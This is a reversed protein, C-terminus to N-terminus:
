DLSVLDVRNKREGSCYAEINECVIDVLRERAEVSAYAIHPTIYIREKNKVFLLANDKEVPERSLVDLGAGYIVGEDLAKALAEEDVIGGRGLNLLIGTKKMLALQEAGILNKTKETLPAHISVIDSLGLLDSLAFTKKGDVNRGEGVPSSIVRCGFGEAYKAVIRGINGMGIIGWTKGELEFFDKGTHDAFAEEAYQGSKTYDDYYRSHSILYFLMAFTHQAVSRGAYAPVNTVAIGKERCYDLDVNDYGTAVECILKLKQAKALSGADLRNQNTLIIEADAAAEALEEGCLADYLSLEGFRSLKELNLPYGLTKYDSFIMKM